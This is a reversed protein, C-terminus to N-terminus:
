SPLDPRRTEDLARCRGSRGGSTYQLRGDPFSSPIKCVLGREFPTGPGVFVQFFTNQAEVTDRHVVHYVSPTRDLLKINHPSDWAEALKFEEYLQEQEIFPLIAVRWSLLPKDDVDCIAAAPLRQNVDHFSHLALAIQKLNNITQTHVGNRVESGTSIFLFMLVFYAAPLGMGWIALHGGRICDRHERVYALGIAGTVLTLAWCAIGIRLLNNWWSCFGVTAGALSLVGLGFVAACLRSVPFQESAM